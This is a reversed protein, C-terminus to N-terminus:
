SRYTDLGWWWHGPSSIDCIKFKSFIRDRRDVGMREMPRLLHPFILGIPDPNIYRNIILIRTMLPPIFSNISGPVSASITSESSSFSPSDQFVIRIYVCFIYIYVYVIYTRGICQFEGTSKTFTLFLNGGHVTVPSEFFVM